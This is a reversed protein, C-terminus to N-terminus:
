DRDTFIPTEKISIILDANNAIINVKGIKNRTPGVYGELHLNLDSDDSPKNKQLSLMSNPIIMRDQQGGIKAMFYSQPNLILSIDASKSNISIADFDTEVRDVFIEGYDLDLDLSSIVAQFSVDTFDGSGSVAMVQQVKIKDNRSNLKLVSIEGLTLESSSSQVSLRSAKDIAVDAGKLKLYGNRIEKMNGSGFSLSIESKGTLERTRLDGHSLTIDLEGKFDNVFVNGFKNDLTLNAGVPLYITYDITVKNRSNFSKSYDEISNLVSSFAGGGRKDMETQVMLFGVAYSFDIEVKDMLREVIEDTKGTAVIDISFKASDKTWTNVIIKGYKNVVEVDDGDGLSFSRTINKTLKTDEKEHAKALYIPALVFCCWIILRNLNKMAEFNMNYRM